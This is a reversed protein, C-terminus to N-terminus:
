SFMNRSNINLKKQQTGKSSQEVMLYDLVSINVSIACRMCYYFLCCQSFGFSYCVCNSFCFLDLDIVSFQTETNKVSM